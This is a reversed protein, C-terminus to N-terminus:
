KEKKKKTQKRTKLLELWGPLTYTAIPYACHAHECRLLQYKVRPHSVQGAVTAVKPARPADKEAGSSSRLPQQPSPMASVPTTQRCFCFIITLTPWTKERLTWICVYGGATARQRTDRMGLKGGESHLVAEQTKLFREGRTGGRTQACTQVEKKKKQKEKKQCQCRVM